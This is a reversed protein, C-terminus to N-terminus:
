SELEAKLHTFIVTLGAMLALLFGYRGEKYGKRAWYSKYFRTFARRLSTKFKPKHGRDRWDQAMADSYRQMRDVMDNIDKDVLHVLGDGPGLDMGVEMAKGNLELEPHARQAGWIKCGKKFLKKAKTTGFSGAWGHQVLRDGVYNQVPLLCHGDPATQVFDQIAKALPEAVREDADVEVIWDHACKDIGLNRRAGEIEWAGELINKTYKECIAKTGDTCRDLVVVIEDCFSLSKLADEIVEEENHAVVLGSLKVVM